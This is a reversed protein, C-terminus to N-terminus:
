RIRPTLGHIYKRGISPPPPPPPPPPGGGANVFEYVHVVPYTSGGDAYAAQQCVHLRRTAYHYAAGLCDQHCTNPWWSIPNSGQVQDPFFWAHHRPADPAILGQRVKDFDDLDFFMFVPTFPENHYGPGTYCYGGPPLVGDSHTPILCDKTSGTGNQAPTCYLEASGARGIRVYGRTGPSNADAPVDYVAAGMFRSDTTMEPLVGGQWPIYSPLQGPLTPYTVPFTAKCLTIAGDISSGPPLVTDPPTWGYASAPHPSSNSSGQAYWAGTLLRKNGLRADSLHVYTTMGCSNIHHGTLFYPGAGGIPTRWPYDFLFICPRDSTQGGAGGVNYNYRGSHVFVYDSGPLGLDSKKALAFGETFLEPSLTLNVAPNGTILQIPNYAPTAIPVSNRDRALRQAETPIVPTPPIFEAVACDYAAGHSASILVNGTDQNITFGRRRNFMAFTGGGILPINTDFRYSGRYIIQTAPSSIRVPAM